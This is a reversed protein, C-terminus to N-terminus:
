LAPRALQDALVAGGLAIRRLRPRIIRIQGALKVAQGALM